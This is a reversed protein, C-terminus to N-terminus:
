VFYLNGLLVNKSISLRYVLMDAMVTVALTPPPRHWLRLLSLSALSSVSSLGALHAPSPLCPFASDHWWTAQQCIFYNPVRCLQTGSFLRQDPRIEMCAGPRNLVPQSSAWLKKSVASGDTWVWNTSASYSGGIWFSYSRSATSLCVKIINRNTILYKSIKKSITMISPPPPTRCITLTYNLKWVQNM